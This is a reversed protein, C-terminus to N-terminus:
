LGDSWLAWLLEAKSFVEDTGLVFWDLGCERFERKSLQRRWAIDNNLDAMM